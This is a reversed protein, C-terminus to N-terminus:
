VNAPEAILHPQAADLASDILSHYKAMEQPTLKRGTATQLGTRAERLAVAMRGIARAEATVALIQRAFEDRGAPAPAAAPTPAAPAPDPDAVPEPTPDNLWPTSYAGAEPTFGLERQLEILAGDSLLPQGTETLGIGAHAQLWEVGRKAVAALTKHGMPMFAIMRHQQVLDMGRRDKYYNPLVETAWTGPGREMGQTSIRHALEIMVIQLMPPLTPTALEPAAPPQAVEQEDSWGSSLISSGIAPSLPDGEPQDTRLWPTTCSNASKAEPVLRHRRLYDAGVRTLAVVLEGRKATHLVLERAYLAQYDPDILAADDARVFEDAVRSRHISRAAIERFVRRQSPSLPDEEPMADAQHVTPLPTYDSDDADDGDVEPQPTSVPPTPTEPPPTPEVFRIQPEAQQSKPANLEPTVFEGRELANAQMEGVVAARAAFLCATADEYWGIQQLYKSVDDTIKIRCEVKRDAGFGFAILKRDSSLTGMPGGVPAAHLATLVTQGLTDAGNGDAILELLTLRLKPTLELAPKEKKDGVMDRARVYPLYSAHKEALYTRAVDEASLERAIKSYDQISRKGRTGGVLREIDTASRGAQMLSWYFQAEDMWHLDERQLNEVGAVELAEADTYDRIRCPMKFNSPLWGERVAANAGRWRREGIIVHFPSDDGETLRRVVIPQLVGKDAISQAMEMVSTEVFHRRPNLPSRDIRFLPIETVDGGGATARGDFVDVALLSREATETLDAVHKPSSPDRVILGEGELADLKRHVHKDSIGARTALENPGSAPGQQLARLLPANQVALPSLQETM